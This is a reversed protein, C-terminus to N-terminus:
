RRQSRPMHHCSMLTPHTTDAMARAVDGAAFVTGPPAAALNPVRLHEDVLLRGLADTAGAVLSTVPQSAPRDDM